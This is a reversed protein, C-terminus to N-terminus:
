AFDHIQLFLNLIKVIHFYLRYLAESEILASFIEFIMRFPIIDSLAHFPEFSLFFLLLFLLRM